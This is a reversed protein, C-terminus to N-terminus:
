IDPPPQLISSSHGPVPSALTAVDRRECGAGKQPLTAGAAFLYFLYMYLSTSADDYSFQPLAKKVFDQFDCRRCQPCGVGTQWWRKVCEHHCRCTCHPCQFDLNADAKLCIMCERM